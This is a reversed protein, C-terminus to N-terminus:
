SIETISLIKGGLKQISQVKHSLQSYGVVYSTNSRKMVPTAGGKTAQIRFRKTTNGGASAGKMPAKIKTPLNGALDAILQASTGGDHSAFGGMLNFTRNFGVNKLGAQTRTNRPYPVISEGFNLLYEESDLYSAIEAEYGQENYLQVHASIEAQDQPARGLFHKFNLEIFRYQSSSNFFLDRYRESNAVISVFERVTIDGNRLRSEASTFRDSELLHANGLVQKYVGRIVGQLDDESFNNKLEVPDADTAWLLAM